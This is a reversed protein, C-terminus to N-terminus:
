SRWEERYDPHDSYPLALLRLTTCPYPEPGQRDCLMCVDGDAYEFEGPAHLEVIRRKAEVERLVRAPNFPGSVWFLEPVHDYENVTQEDEDLRARLFEILNGPGKPHWSKSDGCNACLGPARPADPVFTLCREETEEM